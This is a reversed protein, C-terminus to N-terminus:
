RRASSSSRPAAPRASRRPRAATADVLRPPSTMGSPARGGDELFVGAVFPRGRLTQAAVRLVQAREEDTLLNVYGTDMNVAPEIGAQVTQDLCAALADWDPRGDQQYPLLVASIGEIARPRVRGQLESVTLPRRATSRATTPTTAM